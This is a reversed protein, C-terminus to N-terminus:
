VTAFISGRELGSRKSWTVNEHVTEKAAFQLPTTSALRITNGTSVLGKPIAPNAYLYNDTARVFSNGQVTISTHLDDRYFLLHTGKGLRDPRLQASWSSGADECRNGRVVCDSGANAATQTGTSWYEFSQMNRRTSNNEFVVNRWPTATATVPGQVTMAVDWCDEITSDAIRIDQAGTWVQVGNGFRSQGGSVYGGGVQGIACREVSFDRVPVSTATQVANRGTGVLALDRVTVGSRGEVIPEAIALWVTRGGASPNEPCNVVVSTGKSVFQWPKTLGTVDTGRDGHIVGDVRLFGVETCWSSVYGHRTRGAASSRLDMSWREDAIRTWAAPDDAYAYTTVTPPESEDGWSAVTLAGVAGPRVIGFHQRGRRLLLTSGAGVAGAAIAANARQLTRWPASTSRGDSADDGAPDVYFTAGSGARATSRRAFVLGAGASLGLGAALLTRRRIGPLPHTPHDSPRATNPM